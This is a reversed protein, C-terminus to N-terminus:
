QNIISEIKEKIEVKTPDLQLAKKYMKVAKEPQNSKFYADGLHYTIVPDEPSLIVAEELKVLAKKYQGKRFYVWGLSDIIYGDGPKIKLAKKILKEAKDLFIGKEAYTYGIFNLADANRDNIKLVSQMANMSEDFMSAKDYLVGLYFLIEEDDSKISLAKKLVSIGETFNDEKEHLSALFRYLTLDKENKKIAGQIIEKSSKSDGLKDYIYSLHIQSQSFFNSAPSITLFANKAEELKDTKELANALYYQARDNKPNKDVVLLFQEASSDWKEQEFYILGIKLSTEESM